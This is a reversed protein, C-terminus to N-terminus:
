GQNVTAVPPSITLQIGGTGSGGGYVSVPGSRWSTGSSWRSPLATLNSQRSTESHTGSEVDRFRITGGTGLLAIHYATGSSVPVAPSINVVNWQGALPTVITGSGLLTAPHGYSNSYLGVYITKAGNSAALYVTLTSLTGTSAATQLFAEAQGASTSDLTPGISSVGIFPAQAYGFAASVFALSLLRSAYKM